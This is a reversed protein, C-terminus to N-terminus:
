LKRKYKRTYKVTVTDYLPIRIFTQNFPTRKRQTVFAVLRYHLSWKIKCWVMVGSLRRKDFIQPIDLFRPKRWETKEAKKGDDGADCNLRRTNGLLFSSYKAHELGRSYLWAYESRRTARNLQRLGGRDRTFCFSKEFKLFRVSGFKYALLSQLRSWSEADYWCYVKTFMKRNAPVKSWNWLFFFNSFLREGFVYLRPFSYQFHMNYCLM